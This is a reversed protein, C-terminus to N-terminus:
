EEILQPSSPLNLIREYEEESNLLLGKPCDKYMPLQNLPKWIPRLLLGVEHAEKLLEFNYKKVLSLDKSNFRISILWNNTISNKDCKILDIEEINSFVKKYKEYLIKKNKLRKDINEMQAVGLAANLNPMRDNWAIQDHFFEWPHPKKATTSIHRIFDSKNTDNTIIAGGGGTTIIKNGNFSLIGTEGILGCHIRENNTKSKNWSGLAEAADEILPLNWKSTVELLSYTNAPNGFVHVAIVASIRRGTLKNILEGNKFYGVKELQNSLWREDKRRKIFADTARGQYEFLLVAREGADM